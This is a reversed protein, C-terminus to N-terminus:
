DAASYRYSILLRINYKRNRIRLSSHFFRCPSSSLSRYEKGLITRTIFISFFSIPKMGWKARIPLHFAYVTSQHPFSLYLSWMLSV